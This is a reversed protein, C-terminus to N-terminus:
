LADRVTVCTYTLPIRPVTSHKSTQLQLQVEIASWRKGEVELGGATEGAANIGEVQDESTRENVKHL